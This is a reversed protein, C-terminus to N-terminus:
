IVRALEFIYAVTRKILKIRGSWSGGGKAEGHMRKNFYVPITIIKCNRYAYYLAYLDLSFDDPAGQKLYKNYFDRSFLKPQANIEELPTKLVISALIQMGCSFFTELLKREKRAAKVFTNIDDADLYKNYATIVDSPDTQMDAHTWALVEGQAEKLGALIGYGYGNNVKVKVLKIGQANQLEQAFVQASDDTSGNDVLLVEIGEVLLESFKKVILPINGAENYCPVVISLKISM